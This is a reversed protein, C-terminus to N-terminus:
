SQLTRGVNNINWQDRGIRNQSVVASKLFESADPAIEQLIPQSEKNLWNRLYTIIVRITTSNTGMNIMM